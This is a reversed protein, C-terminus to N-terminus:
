GNSIDVEVIQSIHIVERKVLPVYRNQRPVCTAFGAVVSLVKMRHTPKDIPAVWMGPTVWTMDCSYNIGAPNM